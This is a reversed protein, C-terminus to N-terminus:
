GPPPGLRFERHRVEGGSHAIAVGAVLSATALVISVIALPALLKPFKWSLGLGLASVGATVYYLFVWHDAMAMHHKLFAQGPEDAMSLVRDYGAEGFETVPWITIAMAAVLVLGIVTGSRSRSILSALLALMAVFLGVLPFHNIAAHVYEPQNLLRSLTSM